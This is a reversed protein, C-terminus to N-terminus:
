IKEHSKNINKLERSPKFLLYDIRMVKSFVRTNSNDARTNVCQVKIRFVNDEENFNAFPFRYKEAVTMVSVGKSQTIWEPSTTNGFRALTTWNRSVEKAGQRNWQQIEFNVRAVTTDTSAPEAVNAALFVAYIDYETALVQPIEFAVSPMDPTGGTVVLFGENSILPNNLAIVLRINGQDDMVNHWRGLTVEAEVQVAKVYSDEPEYLLDPTTYVWGNSAQIPASGAFLRAPNKIVAGRTSVISDNVGYIGPSAIAGRFVLDQVLSYQTNVRQLSDTKEMDPDPRFMPYYRDYNKKWAENNPLIMTYVSDEDNLMGIGKAGKYTYWLVNSERFVSDYVIMGGENYDIIKSDIPSFERNSFSYLYNRISDYGAEEMKQWINPLFPAQEKLTHLIGNKAAINKTQLEVGGLVNQTFLLRKASLMGVTSHQTASAPYSFRAIHTTIIRAVALSDEPNVGALADNVPAWVTYIQDGSLIRDYAYRKLLSAFVTLEQQESILAWLSARGSVTDSTNYHEEPDSCSVAGTFCLILAALGSLIKKKNEM